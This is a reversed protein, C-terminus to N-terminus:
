PHVPLCRHCRQCPHPRLSQFVGCVRRKPDPLRALWPGQTPPGQLEHVRSRFPFTRFPLHYTHYLRPFFNFSESLLEPHKKMTEVAQAALESVGVLSITLTAYVRLFVLPSAM